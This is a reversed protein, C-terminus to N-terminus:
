GATIGDIAAQVEARLDDSIPAAGAVSPDAAREQGAESAVYSLYAKVNDADAQDEYVSCAIHYSILVLPYAGAETTTRDLEVVLRNETAGEARPSADVVKAAAEASFPVYEEGVKLAVTGLDGARSADAYGIAGEAGTVTDIVGQTGQGSQGGSIPWDGSPEHPWAGESAAALYETFNETTGSEDSRNVPIIDIAPLEVDPNEAAIAPDNWTTIERNFVKAITAASMNINEADVDPLNYVVAIPSIYLPLEVAEGGVCREEAQALEEEKLAADSGAFQVAGALFQERGGGSGVADYSVAVDPYQENFGAIWGAVAKEQSSAGAGALSGSLEAPAEDGSGATGAPEEANGGSSCAALTLALAGTLAVAGLRNRPSLKM